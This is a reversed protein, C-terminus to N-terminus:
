IEQGFKKCIKRVNEDSTYLRQSVEIYADMRQMGKSTLAIFLEYVKMQVRVTKNSLGLRILMNMQDEPISKAFEYVTM